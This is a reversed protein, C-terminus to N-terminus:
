EGDVPAVIPALAELYADVAVRKGEALCDPYSDDVKVAITLVDGDPFCRQITIKSM